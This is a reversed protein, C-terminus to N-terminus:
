SALGKCEKSLLKGTRLRRSQLSQWRFTMCCSQILPDNIGIKLLSIPLFSTTNKLVSFVRIVGTVTAEYMILEREQDLRLQEFPSYRYNEFEFTM